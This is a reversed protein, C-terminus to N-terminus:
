GQVRIPMILHLFTPDNKIKFVGPSLPGSMEFVMEEDDLFSLIDLLYRANFAIENEEGVMKADVEVMDDGVSPTNASVIFKDKKLSFRIINATERAFVSCIKVASLLDQRMFELKTSFDAPIIKEYTPYEAEILRGVLITDGMSFIIQSTKKSVFMEIEESDEKIGLLERIVRSPILIKDPIQGGGKISFGTRLSLRYGDTAVLSFTKGEKKILIGSLNARGTDSSASFVVRQFEKTLDKRNFEGIKEGKEEIIRPYDDPPMTQFNAEIKSGKLRLTSDKTGIEMKGGVINQLLDSFARAPVTIEGEKEVNASLTSVVGIELDTASIKIKGKKTELLFNGLIPLQNRPSIAHGLHPLKKQLNEILFFAKM